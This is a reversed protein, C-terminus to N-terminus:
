ATYKRHFTAGCYGLKGKCVLLVDVSNKRTEIASRLGAAGAGIILVDTYIREISPKFPM